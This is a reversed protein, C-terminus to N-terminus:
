RFFSLRQSGKKQQLLAAGCEMNEDGGNAFLVSATSSLSATAETISSDDVGVGEVKEMSADMPDINKVQGGEGVKKGMAEMLQERMVERRADSDLNALAVASGKNASGSGGAGEGRQGSLYAQRVAMRQLATRPEPSRPPLSVSSLSSDSSDIQIPGELNHWSQVPATSLRSPVRTSTLSSPKRFVEGRGAEEVPLSRQQGLSNLASFVGRRSKGLARSTPSIM